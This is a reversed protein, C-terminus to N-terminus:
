KGCKCVKNGVDVKPKPLSNIEVISKEMEDQKRVIEKLVIENLLKLRKAEALTKSYDTKNEM